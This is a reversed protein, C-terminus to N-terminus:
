MIVNVKNTGFVFYLSICVMQLDALVFRLYENKSMDGLGLNVYFIHSDSSVLLQKTEWM